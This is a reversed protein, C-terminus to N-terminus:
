PFYGHSPLNGATDGAPSAVGVNAMDEVIAVDLPVESNCSSLQAGTQSVLTIASKLSVHACTMWISMSASAKLFIWIDLPV